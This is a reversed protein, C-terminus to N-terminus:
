HRGAMNAEALKALAQEVEQASADTREIHRMMQSALYELRAARHVEGNGAIESHTAIM